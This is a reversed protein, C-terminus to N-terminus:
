YNLPALPCGNPARIRMAQALTPAVQDISVPIRVKEAKIGCGMMVLPFGVYSERCIQKEYTNENYLVWGPTVQIMVDGSHRTNYANRLKSIGATWAGNALRQSTYVDKVGSLQILFDACRELVETLKLNKSEVLKLNLYLQNKDVTDIYQGPGYVAILYMNLLLQAKTISFIGTPIRWQNLDDIDEADTYGTSTFVFLANGAGVQQEVAHVLTAIQRDLRAYTDQMEVGYRSVGKHEFTGAYLSVNLLDTHTDEGLKNQEMAYRAFRIVEDNVIASSKFTVFRRDGTFKHKFAKKTGREAFYAFQDVSDNLPTWEMKGIREVLSSDRDYDLAWQPYPGYYSSASWRGSYDEIWYAGDAAHGASLIASERDPAVSIIKSRGNTAVKLEDSVTSVALSAPSCRDATFQCSYDDDAVCQVPCLSKRDLWRTGVIGNEYPSTGTVLCAMASARDPSNFPYEAQTYVRGQEMLRALGDEGYLPIFAQLYDSRLQDIVVNVVLRPVITTTQAEAGMVAMLTMLSCLLRYRAIPTNVKEKKQQLYLLRNAKHTFVHDFTCSYERFGASHVPLIVPFTNFRRFLCDVLLSQRATQRM